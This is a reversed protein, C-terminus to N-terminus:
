IGARGGGEPTEYSEIHINQTLHRNDLREKRYTCVSCVLLVQVGALFRLFGLFFCRLHEASHFWLCWPPTRSSKLM